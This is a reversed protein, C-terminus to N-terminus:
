KRIELSLTDPDLLRASIEMFLDTVNKVQKTAVHKGDKEKTTISLVFMLIGRKHQADNLQAAMGIFFFVLATAKTIAPARTVNKLIGGRGTM